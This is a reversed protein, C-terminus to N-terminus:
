RGYNLSALGVDGRVVVGPFRWSLGLIARRAREQVQELKRNSDYSPCAWVESGYELVAQSGNEM